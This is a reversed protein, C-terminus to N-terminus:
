IIYYSQKLYRSEMASSIYENVFIIGKNTLFQCLVNSRELHEIMESTLSVKEAQPPIDERNM